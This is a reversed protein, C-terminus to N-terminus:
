ASLRFPLNAENMLELLDQLYKKKLEQYQEMISAGDNISQHVRILNETRIVLDLTQHVAQLLEEYNWVAKEM